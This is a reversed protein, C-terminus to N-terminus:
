ISVPAADNTANLIPRGGNAMQAFEVVEKYDNANFNDVINKAAQASKPLDQVLTQLMAAASGKYKINRNLQEIFLRRLESYENTEQMIAIVQEFINNHELMDYLEMEDLRDEESFEIDTYLYVINLHFFVDLLLENYQGNIEAKQFAIEFLDFKDRIPLTQKVHVQHKVDDKDTYIFSKQNTLYDKKLNLDKFNM